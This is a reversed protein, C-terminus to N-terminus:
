HHVQAEGLDVRIQHFCVNLLLERLPELLFLLACPSGPEAQSGWHTLAGSLQGLM